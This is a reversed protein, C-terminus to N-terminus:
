IESARSSFFTDQIPWGYKESIKATMLALFIEAGPNASKFDKEFGNASQQFHRFDDATPHQYFYSIRSGFETFDEGYCTGAILGILLLFFKKM